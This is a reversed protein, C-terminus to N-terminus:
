LAWTSPLGRSSPTRSKRAERPIVSGSPLRSSGGVASVTCPTPLAFFTLSSSTSLRSPTSTKSPDTRKTWAARAAPSRVATTEELAFVTAASVLAPM